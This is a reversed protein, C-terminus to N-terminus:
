VGMEYTYDYSHRGFYIIEEEEDIRYYAEPFTARLSENPCRSEKLINRIRLLEFDSLPTISKIRM